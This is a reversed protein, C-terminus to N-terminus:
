SEIMKRMEEYEEKNIEGKALRIKLLHLPNDNDDDPKDIKNLQPITNDDSIKQLPTKIEPRIESISDIKHQLANSNVIKDVVSLKEDKVNDLKQLELLREKAFRSALMRDYIKRQAEEIKKEFDFILTQKQNFGDIYEIITYV